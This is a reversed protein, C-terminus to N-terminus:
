KLNVKSGFSNFDYKLSEKVFSRVRAVSASDATETEDGLRFSMRSMNKMAKLMDPPATYLLDSFTNGTINKKGGLYPLKFERGDVTISAGPDAAFDKMRTFTVQYMKIEKDNGMLKEKLIIGLHNNSTVSESGSLEVYMTYFSSYYPNPPAQNLTYIIRYTGSGDDLPSNVESYGYPRNLSASSCGLCLSVATAALILLIKM